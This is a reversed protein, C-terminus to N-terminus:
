TCYKAVLADIEDGSIFMAMPRDKTTYIIYNETYKQLLIVHSQDETEADGRPRRDEM